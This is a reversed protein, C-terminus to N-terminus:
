FMGEFRTRKTMGADPECLLKPEAKTTASLWESPNLISGSNYDFAGAIM